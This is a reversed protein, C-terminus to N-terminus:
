NNLTPSKRKFTEGQYYKDIFRRSQAHSINLIDAVQQVWGFSSFDVVEVLKLRNMVELKSLGLEPKMPSVNLEDIHRKVFKKASKVSINLLKSCETPWDNSQFNVGSILKLKTDLKSKKLDDRKKITNENELLSSMNGEYLSTFDRGYKDKVYSLIPEMDNKSMVIIDPNSALKSSWEPTEWGKIEVIKGEVVFDPYYIKEKGDHIYSRKELCRCIQKGEDLTKLLFALEWSSDCWIGKYWGKIGRGSGKKYGGLGRQIAVKRLIDKTEQNHTHGKKGTLAKSIKRSSEALKPSTSKSLGKNWPIKGTRDPTTFKIKDPNLNCRIQHSKLSGKNLINKGCFICEM